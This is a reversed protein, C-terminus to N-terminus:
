WVAPVTGRSSKAQECPIEQEIVRRRLFRSHKREPEGSFGALLVHEFLIQPVLMHVCLQLGNPSFRRATRRVPGAGEVREKM